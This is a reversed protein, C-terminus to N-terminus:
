EVIISFPISYNVAVKKGRQEGPIMKPLKKIVRVVEQKLSEHPARAEIDTVNGEKDIKFM